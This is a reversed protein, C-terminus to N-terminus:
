QAAAGLVPAARRDPVAERIRTPLNAGLRVMVDLPQTGQWRAIEDHTIPESEGGLVAVLEGSKVGRVDTVDILTYELSVAIVPVRRSRLVVQATAGSVTPRYGDAVGIPLIGLTTDRAPSAAGDVGYSQGARRLGVGIIRSYIAALVPRFTGGAGTEATQRPARGYLLHGPCVADGPDALGRLIAQSALGQVTPIRIGSAAIAQVLDRFRALRTSAWDAGGDSLFPLHTYLGEIRINPLGSLWVIFDMAEDIPVGLRGLGADIKVFVDVPRHTAASVALALDRDHITPCVDLALLAPIGSPIATAFTMIRTKIGAGRMAVVDAPSGTAMCYVGLDELTRAVPVIGHGYANGKLSAIVKRDTGVRQLIAGYNGALADLDLERWTPHADISVNPAIFPDDRTVL